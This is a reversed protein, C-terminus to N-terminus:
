AKADRDIFYDYFRSKMGSIFFSGNMGNKVIFNIKMIVSFFLRHLSPQKVKHKLYM